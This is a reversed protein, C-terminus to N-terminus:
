NMTGDSSMGTTCTTSMETTACLFDGQDQESFWLSEVTATCRCPSRHKNYLDLLNTRQQPLCDLDRLQLEDFEKSWTTSMGTTAFICIGNTRKGFLNELQLVNILHQRKSHLNNCARQTCRCIGHDIVHRLGDVTTSERHDHLSTSNRCHFHWLNQEDGSTPPCKRECCLHARKLTHHRHLNKERNKRMKRAGRSRGPTSRWNESSKFVFLEENDLAGACNSRLLM